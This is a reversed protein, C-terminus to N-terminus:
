GRSPVICRTITMGSLRSMVDITGVGAGADVGVSAGTGDDVEGTKLSGSASNREWRLPGVDEGEALFAM